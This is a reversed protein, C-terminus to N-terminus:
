SFFWPPWLLFLILSSPVRKFPKLPSTHDVNRFNKHNHDVFSGKNAKTKPIFSSGHLIIKHASTIPSHKFLWTIYFFWCFCFRLLSSSPQIVKRFNMNVSPVPRPMPPSKWPARLVNRKPPPPQTKWSRFHLQIKSDMSPSNISHSFWFLHKPLTWIRLYFAVM